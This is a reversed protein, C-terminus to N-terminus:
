EETSRIKENYGQKGQKKKRYHIKKRKKGEDEHIKYVEKKINKM